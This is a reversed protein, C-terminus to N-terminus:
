YHVKHEISLIIFSKFAILFIIKQKSNIESILDMLHRDNNFLKELPSIQDSNNSIPNTFKRCEEVIM